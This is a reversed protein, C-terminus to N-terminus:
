NDDGMANKLEQSKLYYAGKVVVQDGQKLGGKIVVSDAFKPGLQVLREFRDDEAVYVLDEEGIRILAEQPVTLEM